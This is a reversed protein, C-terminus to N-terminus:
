APSCWVHPFPRPVTHCAGAIGPCAESWHPVGVDGARGACSAPCRGGPWRRGVVGIGRGGAARGRGRGRGPCERWLVLTKHAEYAKLMAQRWMLYWLYRVAPPVAFFKLEVVMYWLSSFVTWRTEAAACPGLSCPRRPPASPNIYTSTSLQKGVHAVHTHRCKATRFHPIPLNSRNHLRPPAWSAMVVRSCQGDAIWCGVLHVPRSLTPPSRQCGWGDPCRVRGGVPVRGWGGLGLWSSTCVGPIELSCRLFKDKWFVYNDERRRYQMWAPYWESAPRLTGTDRISPQAYTSEPEQVFPQVAPQRQGDQWVGSAQPEAEQLQTPATSVPRLPTSVRCRLRSCSGAAGALPTAHHHSPRCLLQAPRLQARDEPKTVHWFRWRLCRPVVPRPALAGGGTWGVWGTRTSGRCPYIQSQM